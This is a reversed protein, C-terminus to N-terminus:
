GRRRLRSELARIGAASILSLVLFMVGVMTPAEVYRFTESGIIKATQLLELVTITSLMPTDKFMAVVYNGLAPIVPPIAQPIIIRTLTRYRGLNLAAAADWQERPIGDFGARYVESCYASYHLGLAIAGTAFPSLKVGAVPLVYFFFYLQVLLPTSRVFEILGAVPWSLMKLHSRRAVALLLGLTLAIATGTVTAKVTIWLAPLFRPLIDWAFQWNFIV